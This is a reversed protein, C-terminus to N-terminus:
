KRGMRSHTDMAAEAEANGIRKQLGDSDKRVAGLVSSLREEVYSFLELAHKDARRREERAEKEAGSLIAQAQATALRTIENNQIMEDAMKRAEAVIRNSEIVANEKIEAAEEEAVAVIKSSENQLGRAKRIEDPLSARIKNTLMDFENIDVWLAKGFINRCNDVLGELDEILGLIDENSSSWNTFPSKKVIEAETNVAM